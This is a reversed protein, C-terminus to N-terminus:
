PINMANIVAAILQNGDCHVKKGDIQVIIVENEIDSSKVIIDCEDYSDDMSCRITSEVKMGEGEGQITKKSLM